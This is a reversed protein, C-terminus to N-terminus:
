QRVGGHRGRCRGQGLRATLRVQVIKEETAPNFLDFREAGLPTVFHGDIYVTDITRM